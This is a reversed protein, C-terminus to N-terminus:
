IGDAGSPGRLRGRSSEGAPHVWLVRWLVVTAVVLGIQAAWGTPGTFSNSAVIEFASPQQQRGMRNSSTLDADTEAPDRADHLLPTDEVADIHDATQTAGAPPVPMAQEFPFSSCWAAIPVVSVKADDRLFKTYLWLHM